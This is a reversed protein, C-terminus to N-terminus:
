CSTAYLAHAYSEHDRLCLFGRHARRAAVRRAPARPVAAAAGLLRRRRLRGPDLNGIRTSFERREAAARGYRGAARWGRPAAALRRRLIPLDDDACTALQHALANHNRAKGGLAPYGSAPRGGARARRAALVGQLTTTGTKHSGAHV